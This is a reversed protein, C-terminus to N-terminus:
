KRAIVWVSWLEAKSAIESFMNHAKVPNSVPTRHVPLNLMRLPIIM